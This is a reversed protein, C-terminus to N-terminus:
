SASGRVSSSVMSAGRRIMRRPCMTDQVLQRPTTEPGQVELVQPQKVAPGARDAGLCSMDLPQFGTV